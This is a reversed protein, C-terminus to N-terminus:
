NVELIEVTACSVVNSKLADEKGDHKGLLYFGIVMVCLIGIIALYQQPTPALEKEDQTPYDKGHEKWAM